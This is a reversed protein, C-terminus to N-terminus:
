PEFGGNPEDGPLTSRFHGIEDRFTELLRARHRDPLNREPKLRTYFDRYWRWPQLGPLKERRFRDVVPADSKRAHLVRFAFDLELSPGSKRVSGFYHEFADPRLPNEVFGITRPDIGCVEAFLYMRVCKYCAHCWQSGGLLPQEATCSFQHRGIDPYRHHLLHFINIEELPELSSQVTTRGGTLARILNSQRPTWESRQDFSAFTRWGERMGCENNSYENGLLILGAGYSVAFPLSLLALQTTQTGWGLETPTTRSFATGYRFLGPAYTVVHTRVGFREGFAELRARKYEEEYPHAPEQCYVLTPEIGLELCLAVTALSEKGFTFPVIAKERDSPQPWDAPGPLSGEARPYEVHLNHLARLYTAPEVGDLQEVMTMEYFQNQVLVSEFAPLPVEYRIASKGLMLPLFHTSAFTLHEVLAQRLAAPTGAWVPKPFEIPFEREDVQVAFGCATPRAGVQIADPDCGRRGARADAARM